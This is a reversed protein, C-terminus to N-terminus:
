TEEWLTFASHEGPGLVQVMQRKSGRYGQKRRIRAVRVVCDSQQEELLGPM